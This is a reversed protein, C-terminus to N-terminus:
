KCGSDPYDMSLLYLPEVDEEIAPFRGTPEYFRNDIRDDNVKSVEGVLIKGKGVEGWFCHYVGTHLTISEGPYVTVESGAPVYYNRGDKSILVDTDAFQEDETSNYLKVILNGGGRNIIDEMKKYHFHYPYAAKGPPIEYVCVHTQKAEGFPVFKRRFYEYGEHEARHSAPIDEIKAHKIM